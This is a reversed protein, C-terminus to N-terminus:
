RELGRVLYKPNIPKKRDARKKDYEQQRKQKEIDECKKCIVRWNNFASLKQPILCRSCYQEDAGLPEINLFKINEPHFVIRTRGAKGTNRCFGHKLIKLTKNRKAVIGEKILLAIFVNRKIGLQHAVETLTPMPYQVSKM